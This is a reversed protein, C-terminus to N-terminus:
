PEPNLARFRLGMVLMATCNSKETQNEMIFVITHGKFELLCGVKWKLKWQIRRKHEM